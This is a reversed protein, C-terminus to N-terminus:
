ILMANSKDSEVAEITHTFMPPFKEALETPVRVKGKIGEMLLSAAVGGISSALLKEILEDGCKEQEGSNLDVVVLIQIQM